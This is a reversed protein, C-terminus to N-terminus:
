ADELNNTFYPMLFDVTAGKLPSTVKRLCFLLIKPKRNQLHSLFAQCLFYYFTMILRM